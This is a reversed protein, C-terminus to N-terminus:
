AGTFAYVLKALRHQLTNGAQQPLGITLLLRDTRGARPSLHRLTFPRSSGLALPGLVVSRKGTCSYTRTRSSRKWAGSCREIKLHLAVASSSTLPSNSLGKVRLVVAAFRGSGRYRLELTRQARDGPALRTVPALARHLITLRPHHAKAVLPRVSALAACVCLASAAVVVLASLLLRRLLPM